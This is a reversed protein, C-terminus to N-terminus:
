LNWKALPSRSLLLRVQLMSYFFCTNGVYQIGAGPKRDKLEWTMKIPTIDEIEAEVPLDLQFNETSPLEIPLELNEPVFYIM